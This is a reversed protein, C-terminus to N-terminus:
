GMFEPAHRECDVGVIVGDKIDHVAVRTVVGCGDVTCPLENRLLSVRQTIKPMEIPEWSRMVELAEVALDHGVQNLSQIVRERTHKDLWQALRLSKGEEQLLEIVHSRVLLTAASIINREAEPSPLPM